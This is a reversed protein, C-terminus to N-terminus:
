EVVANGSGVDQGEEGEAAPDEDQPDIEPQSAGRAVNIVESAPSDPAEACAALVQDVSIGLGATPGNAGGDSMDAATGSSADVSATPEESAATETPTTQGGGADSTDETGGVEGSDTQADAPGSAALAARQGDSYGAIYHIVGTSTQFDLATLSGCTMTLVGLPSGEGTVNQGLVPSPDLATVFAAAYSVALAKRM